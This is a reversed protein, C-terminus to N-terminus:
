TNETVSLKVPVSNSAFLIEPKGTIWALDSLVTWKPFYPPYPIVIDPEVGSGLLGAALISIVPEVYKEPDIASKKCTPVTM